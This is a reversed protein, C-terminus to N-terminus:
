LEEVEGYENMEMPGAGADGQRGTRLTAPSVNDASEIYCLHGLQFRERIRDSLKFRGLTLTGLYDQDYALGPRCEDYNVTEPDVYTGFLRDWLTTFNGYNGDMQSTHHLWHEQPTTIRFPSLLRHTWWFRRLFASHTLALIAFQVLVVIYVMPMMNWDNNGTLGLVFQASFLSVFATPFVVIVAFPRVAIGPMYLAIDTTLHHNEHSFWMPRSHSVFRHFIYDVLGAFYFSAVGVAILWGLGPEGAGSGGTLLTGVYVRSSAVMAELSPILALGGVQLASYVLLVGTVFLLTGPKLRDADPRGQRLFLREGFDLALLLLQM